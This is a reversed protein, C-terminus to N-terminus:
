HQFVFVQSCRPRLPAGRQGRNSKFLPVCSVLLFPPPSSHSFYLHFLLSLCLSHHPWANKLCYKCFAIIKWGILAIFASFSSKFLKCRQLCPPLFFLIIIFFFFGSVKEKGCEEAAIDCRQNACHLFAPIIHLVLPSSPSRELFTQRSTDDAIRSVDGSLRFTLSHGWYYNIQM